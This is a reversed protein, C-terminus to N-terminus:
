FNVKQLVSKLRMKAHSLPVELAHNKLNFYNREKGDNM